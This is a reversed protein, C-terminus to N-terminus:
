SCSYSIANTRVHTEKPITGLVFQFFPGSNRKRVQQSGLMSLVDGAELVARGVPLPHILGSVFAAWPAKNASSGCGTRGGQSRGLGKCPSVGGTGASLRKLTVVLLSPLPECAAVGGGELSGGGGTIQHGTGRLEKSAEKTAAEAAAAPTGTRSNETAACLPLYFVQGEWRPTPLGALPARTGGVTEGCWTVECLHQQSAREGSYDLYSVNNLDRCSSRRRPNGKGKDTDFDISSAATTDTRGSQKSVDSDSYGRSSEDTIESDSEHQVSGGDRTSSGSDKEDIIRGKPRWRRESSSSASAVSSGEGSGYDSSAPSCDDDCKGQATVTMAMNSLEGSRQKRGPLCSGPQISILELKLTLPPIDRIDGFGSDIMCLENTGDTEADSMDDGNPAGPPPLAGARVGSSYYRRLCVRIGVEVIGAVRADASLGWDDEGHPKLRLWLCNGGGGCAEKEERNRGSGVIFRNRSTQEVMGVQGHGGLGVAAALLSRADVGATGLFGGHANFARLNAVAFRDPRVYHEAMKRAFAITAARHFAVGRGRYGRWARQIHISAQLEAYARLRQREIRDPKCCLCCCRPPTLGSSTKEVYLPPPTRALKSARLSSPM